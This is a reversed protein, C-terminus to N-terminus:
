PNKLWEVRAHGGEDRALVPALATAIAGLEDDLHWSPNIIAVGCGNLRDIREKRFLGIEVRLVKGTPLESLRRTFWEVERRTKIPYWVLYMGSAWRRLADQLAGIITAFERESEFPPDILVLGRREPPPLLSRLAEWGDGAVLRVRADRRFATGLMAAAPPHKESLVLRDQPRMLHLALAPSGPYRKPEGVFSQRAFDLWPSLLSAASAPLEAAIVRAIGDKWEGTRQAEAADLVYWGEGAHTDIVRFAAEKQRLHVLIRALAAHKFVDAFNGAHFAHRYNM